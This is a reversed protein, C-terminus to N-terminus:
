NKVRALFWQLLQAKFTTLEPLSVVYNSIQGKHTVLLSLLYLRYWKSNDITSKTNEPWQFKVKKHKMETKKKVINQTFYNTINPLVIKDIDDSPSPNM